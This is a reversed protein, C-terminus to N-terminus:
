RKVNVVLVWIFTDVDEKLTDSCELMVYTSSWRIPMDLLLQLPQKCSPHNPKDQLQVQQFLEKWKASSHEQKVVYDIFLAYVGIENRETNCHAILDANPEQPNYTKSKTVHGIKHVIGLQTAIKYLVQRLRTGNHASNMQMFGLLAM